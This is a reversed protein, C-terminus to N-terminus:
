LAALATVCLFGVELFLLCFFFAALLLDQVKLVGAVTYLLSKNNIKLTFDLWIMRLLPLPKQM